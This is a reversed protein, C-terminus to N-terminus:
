LRIIGSFTTYRKFATIEFEQIELFPLQATRRSSLSLSRTLKECMGMAHLMDAYATWTSTIIYTQGYM